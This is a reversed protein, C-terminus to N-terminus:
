GWLALVQGMRLDQGPNTVIGQGVVKWTEFNHGTVAESSAALIGPAIIQRRGAV